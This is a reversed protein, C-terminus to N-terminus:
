SNVLGYTRDSVFCLGRGFIEMTKLVIKWSESNAIFVFAHQKRASQEIFRNCANHHLFCGVDCLADLQM